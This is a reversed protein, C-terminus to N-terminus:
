GKEGAVPPHSSYKAVVSALQQESDLNRMGCWLSLSALVTESECLGALIDHYQQWQRVLQLWGM